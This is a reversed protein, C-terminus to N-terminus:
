LVFIFVRFASLPPTCGRAIGAPLTSDYRGDDAWGPGDTEAAATPRTVDDVTSNKSVLAPAPMVAVTCAIAVIVAVALRMRRRAAHVTGPASDQQPGRLLPVTHMRIPARVALSGTALPRGLLRPSQLVTM